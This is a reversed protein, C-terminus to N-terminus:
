ITYFVNQASKWYADAQFKAVDICTGILNYTIRDTKGAEREAPEKVPCYLGEEIGHHLKERFGGKKLMIIKQGLERETEECLVEMDM